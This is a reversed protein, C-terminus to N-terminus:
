RIERQVHTIEADTGDEVFSLVHDLISDARATSDAVCAVGIVITQHTDQQATEAASINFTNHLRALLSTVVMRKEKLSHAWPAYLQIELTGIQM